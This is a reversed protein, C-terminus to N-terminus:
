RTYKVGFYSAALAFAAIMMAFVSSAATSSAPTSIVGIGIVPLANGCFGCVFHSSVVEARRDEPAIPNVVQLSGRYGLGATAGCAITAVIMIIMSGPVQASVVLAVSPLMLALAYLMATRSPLQQTAVVTVTVAIGLIYVAYILTLTIQSFGFQQKNIIYLPTLLTSGAFLGAITGAVTLMAALGGLEINRPRSHAPARM